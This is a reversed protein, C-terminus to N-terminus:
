LLIKRTEYIQAAQRILEATNKANYMREFEDAANLLEQKTARRPRLMEYVQLVKEDPINTMEAARRLNAAFQKKGNAEAIQAQLELVESSIKIDEPGIEDNMVKELTIDELKKGSISKVRQPQQKQLPYDAITMGSTKTQKNLQSGLNHQEVVKKVLQEIKNDDM